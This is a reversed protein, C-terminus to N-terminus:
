DQVGYSAIVGSEAGTRCTLTLVGIKSAAQNTPKSGIFIWGSPFTLTRQTADTTIVITKSKGITYNTGTFTTNANISIDQFEDADFDVATTTTSFDHIINQINDIDNGAVDISATTVTGTFTPSVSPAKAALDTTLNTVDSETVTISNGTSSSNITTNTLTKTRADNVAHFNAISCKRPNKAGTPADVVYILDDTTPTTIETLATLDTM